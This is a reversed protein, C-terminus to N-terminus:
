CLWRHRALYKIESPKLLKQGASRVNAYVHRRSRMGVAVTSVAAHSLAFRLALDTTSIDPSNVDELIKHLRSRLEDRFRPYFHAARWDDEKYRKSMITSLDLGGAYLPSRVIVAVDHRQCAQFLGDAAGQDFLNYIVQVSDVTNSRVLEIGAEADHDLLSVGFGSIKGEKKLMSLTELWDGQHLWSPLWAHLQQLAIHDMRLARLSEETSRRIHWGPFAKHVDVQPHPYHVPVLPSVKTAINVRSSLSHPSIANGILEEVGDYCRATDIFNVGLDISLLIAREAEEPNLDRWMTKDFGWTGASLESVM